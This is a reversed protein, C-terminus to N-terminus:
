SAAADVNRIREALRLFASAASSPTRRADRVVGLVRELKPGPIPLVALTGARVEAAVSRAPLVSAGLGVEVLKKIAEPSSMEMAVKPALGDELFRADIAQRTISAAKFTILPTTALEALAVRRRGALPHRGSIIFQLAERFLPEVSFGAPVVAKLAGAEVTVIAVEIEGAELQRLLSETGEVRVSTEVLPYRRGFARYVKPLVYISAADTTGVELRGRVEGSRAELVAPLADFDHIVRRAADVLAAGAPTLAVARGARDFLRAGLEAELAAVAQSVAPQSVGSRAAAGRFSGADAVAVFYRMARLEM